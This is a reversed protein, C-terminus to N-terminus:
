LNRALWTILPAVARSREALWGVLAPRHILGRPMAGLDVCLGKMRALGARPHDDTFGRPPRVLSEAAILKWGHAAVAAVLRDLERGARPDLLKKRWRTMSEPAFIWIGALTEEELGFSVYLAAPQQTPRKGHRVPIAGAIHTKYPTKDRAFRVDRHIRFVKPEALGVTRYAPAIEARVAALLAQMPRQWLAEYDAKHAAYWDRSMEVALEHFFREAGRPFGGFEVPRM